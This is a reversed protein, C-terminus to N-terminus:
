APRPGFLITGLRIMNAGEEIAIPYSNSMGMSLIKMEVNAVSMAALREFAKRTEIFYPRSDEPNGFRPGMTMIGHIRLHEFEAIERVREGVEEPLFGTKNPERGSNIEVLVPMVRGTEAAIDNVMRAVRISDISDIWDCSEMARRVKNRQLHGIMRWTAEAEVASRLTQAEQVYNQGIHVIGAQIVEEIEEPTRRKAAAVVTIHDPLGALVAQVAQLTKM